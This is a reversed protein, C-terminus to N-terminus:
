VVVAISEAERRKTKNRKTEVGEVHAVVAAGQDAKTNTAKGYCV